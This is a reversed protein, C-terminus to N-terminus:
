KARDEILKRMQEVQPAVKWYAHAIAALLNPDDLAASDDAPGPLQYDSEYAIVGSLVRGMKGQRNVIANKVDDAIPLPDVITKIPQDLLFDLASLLGTMYLQSRQLDETGLQECMCARQLALVLAFSPKDGLGSLLFLSSLDSVFGIGLFLVAERVSGIEAKRGLMASNAAQLIRYSLSANQAILETVAEVDALPDQCRELLLTMSRIDVTPRKGPVVEPRSLFYGQFLEFGLDRCFRFECNSEIKEALTTVGFKEVLQLQRALEKGPMARVDLKVYDALRLAAEQTASLQGEVHFDDLALRYGKQKLDALAELVEPTFRVTELIELVCRSAPLVRALGSLIVAEPLNVFVSLDGAIQDFGIDLMSHILLQSTARDPADFKASNERSSRFLLEHACLRLQGDFIPQRGIFVDFPTKPASQAM